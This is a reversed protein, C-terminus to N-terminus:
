LRLQKRCLLFLFFYFSIIMMALGIHIMPFTNMGNGNQTFSFSGFFYGRPGIKLEGGAKRGKNNEREEHQDHQSRKKGCAIVIGSILLFLM